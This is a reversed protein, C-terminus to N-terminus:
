EVFIYSIILLLLISIFFTGKMKLSLFKQIM